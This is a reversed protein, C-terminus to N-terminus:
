PTTADREPAGRPLRLIAQLGGNMANRLEMTGGSQEAFGKVMSLGLGSGDGVAKTTFFPETARQLLDNPMGPGTDTVVIKVCGKRHDPKV